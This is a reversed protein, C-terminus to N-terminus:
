RRRRFPARPIRFRDELSPLFQIRLAGLERVVVGTAAVQGKGEFDRIVVAGTAAPLLTPPWRGDKSMPEPNEQTM